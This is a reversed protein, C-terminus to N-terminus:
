DWIARKLNRLQEQETRPSPHEQYWKLMEKRKRRPTNFREAIRKFAMEREADYDAIDRENTM